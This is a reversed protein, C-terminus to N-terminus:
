EIKLVLIRGGTIYGRGQPVFTIVFKNQYPYVIPYYDLATNVSKNENPYIYPTYICNSNNKILYGYQLFLLTQNNVSYAQIIDNVDSYPLKSIEFEKMDKKPTWLLLYTLDNYESGKSGILYYTENLKSIKMIKIPFTTIKTDAPKGSSKDLIYMKNQYQYFLYREKGFETFTLVKKWIIHNDLLSACILEEGQYYFYTDEYFEIPEVPLVNSLKGDWSLFFNKNIELDAPGNNPSYCLSYFNLLIGKESVHKPYLLVDKCGNNPEIILKPLIDHVAKDWQIAGDQKNVSYLHNNSQSIVLISQNHEVMKISRVYYKDFCLETLWRTKQTKQNICTLALKLNDESGTNIQYYYADNDSIIWSGPYESPYGTEISFKSILGPESTEQYDTLDLKYLSGNKTYELKGEKLQIPYIVPRGRQIEKDYDKYFDVKVNIEPNTQVPKQDATSNTSSISPPNIATQNEVSKPKFCGFQSLILLGVVCLTTYKKM